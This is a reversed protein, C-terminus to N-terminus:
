QRSARPLGYTNALPLLPWALVVVVVISLVACVTSWEFWHPNTPKFHNCGATAAAALAHAILARMSFRARFIRADLQEQTLTWRHVTALWAEAASRVVSDGATDTTTKAAKAQQLYLAHGDKAVSDTLDSRTKNTIDTLWQTVGASGGCERLVYGWALFAAIGTVGLVWSFADANMAVFDLSLLSPEALAAAIPASM